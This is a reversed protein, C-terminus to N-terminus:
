RFDTEIRFFILIREDRKCCPKDIKYKTGSLGELCVVTPLLAYSNIDGMRDDCVAICSREGGRFLLSSYFTKM